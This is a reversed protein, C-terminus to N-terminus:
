KQWKMISYELYRGLDTCQSENFTNYIIEEKGTTSLPKMATDIDTYKHIQIGSYNGSSAYKYRFYQNDYEFVILKNHPEIVKNLIQVETINIPKNYDM